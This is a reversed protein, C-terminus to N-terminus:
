TVNWFILNLQKPKGHLECYMLAWAAYLDLYVVRWPLRGDDAGCGTRARSLSGNGFNEQLILGTEKHESPYKVGSGLGANRKAHREGFAPM